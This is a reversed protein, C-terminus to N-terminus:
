WKDSDTIRCIVGTSYLHLTWTFVARDRSVRRLSSSATTDGPRDRPQATPCGCVAERPTCRPGVRRRCGSSCLSRGPNRISASDAITSAAAHDRRRLRPRLMSRGTATRAATFASTERHRRPATMQVIWLVGRQPDRPSDLHTTSSSAASGYATSMAIERHRAPQVRLTRPGIERSLCAAAWPSRARPDRSLHCSRRFARAGARLM